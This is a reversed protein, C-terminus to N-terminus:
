KSDVGGRGEGDIGIEGEREVERVVGCLWYIWVCVCLFLPVMQHLLCDYVSGMGDKGDM